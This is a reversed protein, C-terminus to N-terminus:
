PQIQPLWPKSRQHWQAPLSLRFAPFGSLSRDLTQLAPLPARTLFNRTPPWIAYGFPMSGSGWGRRLNRMSDYSASAPGRSNTSRAACEGATTRRKKPARASWEAAASSDRGRDDRDKVRTIGVRMAYTTCRASPSWHISIMKRLDVNRADFRREVVGDHRVEHGIKRRNVREGVATGSEHPPKLVRLAIRRGHPRVVVVADDDIKRHPLIERRQVVEDIAARVAVDEPAATLPEITQGVHGDRKPPHRRAMLRRDLFSHRTEIMQLSVPRRGVRESKLLGVGRRLLRGSRRM